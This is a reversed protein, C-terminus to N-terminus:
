APGQGQARDRAAALGAVFAAHEPTACGLDVVALLRLGDCRILAEADLWLGPFHVSHYLRDDGLPREVLVGEERVFWFVQDPELARVVYELVGAKQYDELKPGLDVYRTAHSVEVLLEPTGHLMKKEVRTRGGYEPLIRLMADPQPESKRGLIATTNDGVQVGPTQNAYYFLWFIVPAHAVGHELGVPSPMYVVGNILEARTGPPMAEYRAHFTPQDLWDGEVLPPLPPMTGDGGIAGALPTPPTMVPHRDSM